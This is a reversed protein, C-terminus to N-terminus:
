SAGRGTLLDRRSLGRGDPAKVFLDQMIQLAVARATQQDPMDLVSRFLIATLYSDLQEDQNVTFEIPGSPFEISATDGQAVDKWKENSPLLVLNMFWQTIVIGLQHGSFDEFGVAEVQLKPNVIPLDQMKDVYISEFRSVLADIAIM